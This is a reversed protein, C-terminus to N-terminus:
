RRVRRLATALKKKIAAARYTRGRMLRYMGMM